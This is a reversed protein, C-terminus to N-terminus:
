HLFPALRRGSERGEPFYACCLRCTCNSTGYLSFARMDISPETGDASVPIRVRKGNKVYGTGVQVLRKM